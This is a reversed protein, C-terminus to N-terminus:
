HTLAEKEITTILKAIQYEVETLCTLIRQTGHQYNLRKLTKLEKEMSDIIALKQNCLNDETKYM